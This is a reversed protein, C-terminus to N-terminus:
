HRRNKDHYEFHVLGDRYDLKVDLVRLMTFGLFGSLETGMSDSITSLDFIVVGPDTTQLHGFSVTAKGRYVKKAEGSLGRVRMGSDDPTVNEADLGARVSLTNAFAGTDIEFLLPRSKNVWTPVLLAHGFRFAETWDAMEPAIYRDRYRDKTVRVSDSSDSSSQERNLSESEEGESYLSPAGLNDDPRKPLPSLKLRMDSYDIDILYDQFVNAGILGDVGVVSQRDSVGILCDQFELAGIRIRDAVATYGPQSGQDGVGRLRAASIRTLGAREAVVRSLTIGGAGTDLLLSVKQKNLKVTLGRGRPMTAGMELGLGPLRRRTAYVTELKAETQDVKSVMRCEHIPKDAQAKFSELYATLEKTEGADDPGLKGLYAELAAQREKQALTNVWARLVARDDPAIEHAIRLEEYGKRYMSSAYYLRALGLYAGAEKPNAKKAALYSSEAEGMEARRFNVNGKEVLLAASNPQLFLAANVANLSEDIKRQRLMARVLGIQASVLKPDAQVLAQYRMEAEAFKGERYFRDAASLDTAVAPTTAEQGM